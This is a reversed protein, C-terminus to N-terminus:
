VNKRKGKEAKKVGNTFAPAEVTKKSKAGVIWDAESASTKSKRASQEISLKGHKKDM